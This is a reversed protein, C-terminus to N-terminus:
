VVSATMATLLHFGDENSMSTLIYYVHYTHSPFPRTFLTVVKKVNAPLLVNADFSNGERRTQQQLLWSRGAATCVAVSM